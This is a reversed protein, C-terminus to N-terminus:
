VPTIAEFPFVGLCRGFRVSEVSLVVVTPVKPWGGYFGEAEKRFRKDRLDAPSTANVIDLGGSQRLRVRANDFRKLHSLWQSVESPSAVNGLVKGNMLVVPIGEGNGKMEKGRRNASTSSPNSDVYQVFSCLRLVVVGLEM